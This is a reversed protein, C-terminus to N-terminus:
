TKATDALDVVVRACSEVERPECGWFQRKQGGADVLRLGPHCTVDYLIHRVHVLRWLALEPGDVGADVLLVHDESGSAEFAVVDVADFVFIEYRTPVHVDARSSVCYYVLKPDDTAVKEEEEFVFLGAARGGEDRELLDLGDSFYM